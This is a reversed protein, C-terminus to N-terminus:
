ALLLIYSFTHELQELECGGCLVDLNRKSFHANHMSFSRARHTYGKFICSLEGIVKVAM